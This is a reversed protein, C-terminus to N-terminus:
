ILRKDRERQSIANLLKRQISPTTSCVQLGVVTGTSEPRLQLNPTFTHFVSGWHSSYHLALPRTQPARHTHTHTHLVLTHTLCYTHIHTHSVTHTKMTSVQPITYPRPIRLLLVAMLAMLTPIAPVTYPYPSTHSEWHTSGAPNLYRHYVYSLLSGASPPNDSLAKECPHCVCVHWLLCPRPLLPV